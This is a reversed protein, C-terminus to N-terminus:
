MCKQLCTKCGDCHPITLSCSCERPCSEREGGRGDRSDTNCRGFQADAVRTGPVGPSRRRQTSELLRTHVKGNRQATKGLQSNRQAKRGKKKKKRGNSRKSTFYDGRMKGLSRERGAAKPRRLGTRTREVPTGESAVSKWNIKGSGGLRVRADESFLAYHM